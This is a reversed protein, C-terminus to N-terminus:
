ADYYESTELDTTVQSVIYIYMAVVIHTAGILDQETATNSEHAEENRWRRLNELFTNFQKYVPQPNNRLGRLASFAFIADTFTANQGENRAQIQTGNMLYYLKKLFPEYNGVLSTFHRRRDVFRLNPARYVQNLSDMVIDNIGDLNSVSPAQIVKLMTSIVETLPRIYRSLEAFTNEMAANIAAHLADIDLPLNRDHATNKALLDSVGRVFEKSFNSGENVEKLLTFFKDIQGGAKQMIKDIILRSLTEPSNNARFANILETDVQLEDIINRIIKDNEDLYGEWPENVINLLEQLSKSEDARPTNIDGIRSSQLTTSEDELPLNGEFSMQLRFKNLDVKELIEMPLTEKTYPLAKYLVKYFVYHRELDPDIFKMLQAMFGYSRIYRNVLKRFKEKDADAMPMVRENVIAKVLSPVAQATAKNLLAKVINEEEAENYVKYQEIEAIFSYLRQVDVDGQLKTEKYYRQFAKQVDTANNRFDLVMTDEKMPPCCRNLRSLTQICQIGGLMKDVYMTHLLKQDFGTQFKDAVILIRYEPEEFIDRIRNDKIGYGNMKDETYSVGDCEVTGSFAVLTKISGNYEKQIIRDIIQKYRVASLRSDSVVMAKAQGGIKHISTSFFHALMVRAKKEMNYPDKNLALLILRISKREEYEKSAEDEPLGAKTVYEYMTDFTTYNQLVDLIFKEDIAQKMSYYDHAKWNGNEDKEGFLAYTKDKPTATFAFYSIHSMEQRMAQLFALMADMESEYDGAKFKEAYRRLEEDTSLANVLDKASENGIATHAEDVIIAYRRASDRKLHDLAYAFKQVTSVIIRKGDNIADALNKSGRRIDSVTGAETEFNNVDDAMNANLVIRDTVMIISDFIPRMERDTLNALQHALWAMSKTKGSGAAHEILYNKGAGNERSWKCLNRVARLQHFRPFITVEREKGTKKDREKYQKIFHQLINLLSDAQWIEKWIYCTPYDGEVPPNTSDRNFPLFTTAEGRLVTTMFAYNNDIAFHVLATKLLRNQPNRDTSYQHIANVYTQDTQENKLEATIIPIGNVLIALDLENKNYPPLNSYRLQRVVSFRNQRYLQMFESDEDDYEPKFQVLKIKIGQINLGKLLLHSLKTGKDIRSNFEKVVAEFAADEGGFRDVLRQWKSPQAEIFRRLMARDCLADIDFDASTRQNYLPSNALYDAIHEEFYTENLINM